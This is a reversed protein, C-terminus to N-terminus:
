QESVNKVTPTEMGDFCWLKVPRPYLSEVPKGKTGQGNLPWGTGAHLTRGLAEFISSHKCSHEVLKQFITGSIIRFSIRGEKSERSHSRDSNTVGHSSASTTHDFPIHSRSPGAIPPREGRFRLDPFRRVYACVWHRNAHNLCLM